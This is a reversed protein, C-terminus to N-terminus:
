TGEPPLPQDPITGQGSNVIAKLALAYARWDVPLAIGAIACNDITQRVDNELLTKAQLILEQAAQATRIASQRALFASSEEESMVIHQDEEGPAAALTKILTM